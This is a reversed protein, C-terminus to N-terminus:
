VGKQISSPAIIEEDDLPPNFPDLYRLPGNKWSFVGMAIARAMTPAVKRQHKPCLNTQRRPLVLGCDDVLQM